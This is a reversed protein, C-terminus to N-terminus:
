GSVAAAASEVRIVTLMRRQNDRTDWYFAAGEALGLLAVGLPTVVSIRHRAIDADEPYVLMVTREQRSTEDRYTVNSGIAVVNKPMKDPAVIRARGLEDLLRDALPPNRRMAGEALGELRELTAQSLVIRPHRASARRPKNLATM